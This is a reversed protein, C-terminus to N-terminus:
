AKQQNQELSEIWELATSLKKFSKIPNQKSRVKCYFNFLIRQSLGNLIFAESKAKHMFKEVYQRAKPTITTFQGSHIIRSISQDVGLENQFDLMEEIDSQDIVVNDKYKFYLINDSLWTVQYKKSNQSAKM